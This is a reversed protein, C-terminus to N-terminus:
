WMAVYWCHYIYFGRPHDPTVFFVVAPLYQTVFLPDHELNLSMAGYRFHSSHGCLKVGGEPWITCWYPHPVVLVSQNQDSRVSVRIISGSSTESVTKLEVNVPSITWFFKTVNMYRSLKLDWIIFIYHLSVIFLVKEEIFVTCYWQMM